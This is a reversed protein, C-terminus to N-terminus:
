ENTERENMRAAKTIKGSAVCVISTTTTTYYRNAQVIKVKNTMWAEQLYKSKCLYYKKWIQYTTKEWIRRTANKCLLFTNGPLLKQEYERWSGKSEVFFIFLITVNDVDFMACEHWKMMDCQTVCALAEVREFRIWTTQFPPGAYVALTCVDINRSHKMGIFSSKKLVELCPLSSFYRWLVTGGLMRARTVM